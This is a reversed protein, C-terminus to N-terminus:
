CSDCIPIDDESQSLTYDKLLKCVNRLFISTGDAPNFHTSHLFTQKYICIALLTTVAIWALPCPFMQFPLRSHQWRVSCVRRRTLPPLHFRMSVFGSCWMRFLLATFAEVNLGYSLSVSQSVLFVLFWGVLESDRM